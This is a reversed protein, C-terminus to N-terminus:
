PDSQPRASKEAKELKAIRSIEELDEPWSLPRVSGFATELTFKTPMLRVGTEDIAFTVKDRPKIGLRRRVEAPITVQGRETVTSVIERM